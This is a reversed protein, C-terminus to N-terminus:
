QKKALLGSGFLTINGSRFINEFIGAEVLDAVCSENLVQLMEM